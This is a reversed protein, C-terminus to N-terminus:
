RVISSVRGRKAGRGEEPLAKLKPFLPPTLLPSIEEEFGSADVCHDATSLTPTPKPVLKKDPLLPMMLAGFVPNDTM